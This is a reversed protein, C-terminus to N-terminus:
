KLIKGRKYMQFYQGSLKREQCSITRPTVTARVGVASRVANVQSAQLSCGNGRSVIDEAHTIRDIRAFVRLINLLKVFAGYTFHRCEKWEGLSLVHVIVTILWLLRTTAIQTEILEPM